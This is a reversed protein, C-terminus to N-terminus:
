PKKPLNSEANLDSLRTLLEPDDDCADILDEVTITNQTGMRRYGAEIASHYYKFLQMRSMGEGELKEKHEEEFIIMQRFGFKIPHEKGSIQIIM